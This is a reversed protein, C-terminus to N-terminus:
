SANAAHYEAARQKCLELAEQATPREAYAVQLLLLMVETLAPSYGYMEKPLIETVFNPKARDRFMVRAESTSVKGTCMAHVLCGVGWVDSKNNYRRQIQEPSMYQLTGTRTQAYEESAVERSLGFDTYVVRKYNDALLVNSPKLDRHMLNKSHLFALGDLLQIAYSWVTSESLGSLLAAGGHATDRKAAQLNQLIETEENNEENPLVM